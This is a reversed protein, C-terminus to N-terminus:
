VAGRKRLRLTFVALALTLVALGIELVRLALIGQPESPLASMTPGVEQGLPISTPTPYTKQADAAVTGNAERPCVPCSTPAAALPLLAEPSAQVALMDEAPAPAAATGAPTATGAAAFLSAAGAESEAAPAPAGGSLVRAALGLQNQALADLGIVVVFALGALATGLQLVPYWRVARRGIAEPSLAFSRPVPRSPLSRLLGVTERLEQLAGRLQADDELRRELAAAEAPALRGDMYASLGELDRRSLLRLQSM